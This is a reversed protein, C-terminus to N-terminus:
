DIDDGPVSSRVGSPIGMQQIRASGFLAGLDLDLDSREVPHAPEVHGPDAAVELVEAWVLEFCRKISGVLGVLVLNSDM